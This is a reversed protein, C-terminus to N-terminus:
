RPAGGGNGGGGNGGGGNGGNGGGNGGGGFGGGQPGAISMEDGIIGLMMLLADLRPKTTYSTKQDLIKLAADRRDREAAVDARFDAILAAMQADTIAKDQMAEMIKRLQDQLLRRAKSQEQSYAVIADQLAKDEFGARSLGRRLGREQREQQMKQRQEPTMNRWDPRNNGGPPVPAAPPNEAKADGGPQAQSAAGMLGVSLGMVLPMVLWKRATMEQRKV